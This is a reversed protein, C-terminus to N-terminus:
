PGRKVVLKQYAWRTFRVCNEDVYTATIDALYITLPFWLCAALFIGFVYSENSAMGTLALCSHALRLGVSWLLPGHVLYLSFSIKAFYQSIPHMLVSQMFTARDITLVLLVAGIPVLVSDNYRAPIWSTITVYGWSIQGGRVWEPTSLLWLSIFLGIAGLTRTLVYSHRIRDITRHLISHPSRAWMPVSRANGVAPHEDLKSLIAEVEFHLECVLMGGLFMFIAWFVFYYHLYVMVLLGFLMRVHSRIETFASLFLFIIMSSSFEMPLTWLNPDYPHVTIQSFNGQPLGEKIPNTHIVETSIYHLLQGMLTPARPPVRTPVAVGPLGQPGYWTPDLQLMLASFLTVVAAPMFLRTHRRFISSCLTSGVEAFRGQRALKIAKHSIAFGSVVFFVSVQPPGSLLLRIIPLRIFWGKQHLEPSWGWHIDWSFWCLSAHHFVVFLAAIGRLGDASCDVILDTRTGHPKQFM